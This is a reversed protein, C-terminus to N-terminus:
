NKLFIAKVLIRVLNVITGVYLASIITAVVARSALRPRSLNGEIEFYPFCYAYLGIVVNAIVVVSGFLVGFMVLAGTGSLPQRLDFSPYLFKATWYEVFLFLVVSTWFLVLSNGYVFTRTGRQESNLLLRMREYTGNVWNIDGGQIILQNNSKNRVDNFDTFHTKASLAIFGGDQTDTRLSLARLDKPLDPIEFDADEFIVNSEKSLFIYREFSPLNTATKVEERELNRTVFEEENHAKPDFQHAFDPSNRYANRLRQQTEARTKEQALSHFETILKKATEASVSLPSIYLVKEVKRM